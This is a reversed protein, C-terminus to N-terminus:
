NSGERSANASLSSRSSAAAAGPPPPPMAEDLGAGPFGEVVKLVQGEVTATILLHTVGLLLAFHDLGAVRWDALSADDSTEAVRLDFWLAEKVSAKEAERSHVPRVFRSKRM